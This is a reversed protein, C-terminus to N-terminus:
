CPGSRSEGVGDYLSCSLPEEEEAPQLSEEHVGPYEAVEVPAGYLPDQSAADGGPIAAAGGEVM